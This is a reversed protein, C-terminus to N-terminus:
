QSYYQEFILKQLITITKNKNKQVRWGLINLVLDIIMKNSSKSKLIWLQIPM